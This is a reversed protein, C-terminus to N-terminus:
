CFSEDSLLAYILNSFGNLSKMVEMTLEDPFEVGFREELAVIFTIFTISDMGTSLLDVDAEANDIIIGLKELEEIIVSKVETESM